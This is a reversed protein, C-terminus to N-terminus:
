KILNSLTEIIELSKKIMEDKRMMEQRASEIIEKIIVEHAEKSVEKKNLKKM